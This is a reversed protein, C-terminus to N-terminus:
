LSCFCFTKGGIAIVDNEQLCVKEKYGLREGNIYTGNLSNLDELYYHEADKTIFAHRRSVSDDAIIEDATEANKGIVIRDKTLFIRENEQEKSQLCYAGTAHYSAGLLVTPNEEEGEPRVIIPRIDTYTEWKKATKKKISTVKDSFWHEIKDKIVKVTMQPKSDADKKVPVKKQMERETVENSSVTNQSFIKDEDPLEYSMADEQEWTEEVPYQLKEYDPNQQNLVEYMHYLLKVLKQNKYDILTLLEETMSLLDEKLEKKADPNYCFLFKGEEKYFITDFGILVGTPNLLHKELEKSFLYVGKMLELMQTEGFKRMELLTRVSICGTLKYWLETNGGQLAIAIPLCGKLNRRNLFEMEYLPVDQLVVVLYNDRGSKKMMYMMEEMVRNEGLRKTDRRFM